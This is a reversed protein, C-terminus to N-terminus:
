GYVAATDWLNLGLSMAMDFVPKLEEEFLSNGFVQDGGAFGVGWSWAGLAIKPMKIEM